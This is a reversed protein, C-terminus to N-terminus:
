LEPVLFWCAEWRIAGTTIYSFDPNISISVSLDYPNTLDGTLFQFVNAVTDLDSVGLQIDAGQQKVVGNPGSQTLAMSGTIPIAGRFMQHESLILSVFRTRPSVGTLFPVAKTTGPVTNIDGTAIIGIRCELSPVEPPPPAAVGDIQIGSLVANGVSPALDIRIAGSATVVPFADDYPKLAGSSVAFLDLNSLVPAGNISVAFVRQGAATKNPELFKLVISYSGPPLQFTYSLSTGPPNSYRLNRYPIDQAAMAARDAATSGNAPWTSGGTFSADPSWVNGQPDTGGAGGCAMRILTAAPSALVLFLALVLTRVAELRHEWGGRDVTRRDINVVTYRLPEKV